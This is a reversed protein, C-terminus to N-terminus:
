GSGCPILIEGDSYMMRLGCSFDVQTGKEMGGVSPSVSGCSPCVWHADVTANVKNEFRLMWFRIAWHELQNLSYRQPEKRRDYVYVSGDSNVLVVGHFISEMFSKLELLETEDVNSAFWANLDGIAPDLEGSNLRNKMKGVAERVGANAAIIGLYSYAQGEEYGISITEDDAM